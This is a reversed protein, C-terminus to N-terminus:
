PGADTRAIEKSATENSFRPNLVRQIVHRPCSGGPGVALERKLHARREARTSM